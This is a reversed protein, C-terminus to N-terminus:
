TAGMNTAYLSGLMGGVAGTLYLAGFARGRSAPPYYDAILSQGSPIVLALGVGNVAWLATGVKSPLMCQNANCHLGASAGILGDELPKSMDFANRRLQWATQLMLCCTLSDNTQCPPSGEICSVTWAQESIIASLSSRM